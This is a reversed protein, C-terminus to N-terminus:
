LNGELYTKLHGIINLLNGSNVIVVLGDELKCVGGGLDLSRRDADPGEPPGEDKKRRDEIQTEDVTVIDEIGDVLIGFPDGVAPKFLVVQSDGDVEKSEFGLVMGLDLILYIEGRISVCGKVEKPAHFIPTLRVESNIEKVDLIDVGFRMGSIRFTCFQRSKAEAAEKKTAVQM